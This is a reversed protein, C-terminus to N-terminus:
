HPLEKHRERSSQQMECWIGVIHFSFVLAQAVIMPGGFVWLMGPGYFKTLFLAPSITLLFVFWWMNSVLLYLEYAKPRFWRELRSIKLDGKTHQDM